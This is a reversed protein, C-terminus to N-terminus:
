KVRALFARGAESLQLIERGKETVITRGCDNCEQALTEGSGDEKRAVASIWIHYRDCWKRKLWSLM